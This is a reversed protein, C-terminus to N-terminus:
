KLLFAIPFYLPFRGDRFRGLLFSQYDPLQHARVVSFGDWYGSFSLPWGYSLVVILGAVAFIVTSLGVTRRLGARRAETRPRLRRWRSWVVAAVPLGLAPIFLVGSFKSALTAGLAAGAGAARRLNARQMMEWAALATLAGFAAVPVDTTVLRAHALLTPSFVCLALTFLGGAPGYLRTSWIFCVVCLLLGILIPGRRARTMIATPDRGRAFLFDFGFTWEDLRRWNPILSDLQGGKPWLAAAAILKALPPHEQNFVVAGTTLEAYGAPLHAVEDFTPATTQLTSFAQVLFATLLLLAIAVTTTTRLWPRAPSSARSDSPVGRPPRPEPEGGAAMPGARAPAVRGKKRSSM